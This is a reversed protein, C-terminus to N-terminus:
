GPVDALAGGCVGTAVAEAAAGGGGASVAGDDDEAPAACGTAFASAALLSADAPPCLGAFGFMGISFFCGFAEAFFLVATVAEGAASTGAALSIHVVPPLSGLGTEGADGPSAAAVLACNGNGAAVAVLPDSCGGGLLLATGGNITLKESRHRAGAGGRM